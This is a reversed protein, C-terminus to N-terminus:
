RGEEAVLRENMAALLEAYRRRHQGAPESRGTEWAWVSQPTVGVARAVEIQQIGLARRLRAREPAPPLAPASAIRQLLPEDDM